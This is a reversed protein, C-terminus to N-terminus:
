GCSFRAVVLRASLLHDGPEGGHAVLAFGTGNVDCRWTAALGDAVGDGSVIRIQRAAASWVGGLDLDVASLAEVEIGRAALRGIATQLMGEPSAPTEQWVIVVDHDPGRAIVAGSETTAEESDLGTTRWEMGVPLHLDFGEIGLPETDGEIMASPAGSEQESVPEDEEDVAVLPVEVVAADSAEDNGTCGAVGFATVAVSALLRGHWARFSM